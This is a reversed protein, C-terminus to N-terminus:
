VRYVHCMPLELSASCFRTCCRKVWRLTSSRCMVRPGPVHVRTPLGEFWVWQEAAEPQQKDGAPTKHQYTKLFVLRLDGNPSQRGQAGPFTTLDHHKSTRPLEPEVKEESQPVAGSSQQAKNTEELELKLEGTPQSKKSEPTEELCTAGQLEENERIVTECVNSSRASIGLIKPVRLLSNWCRKALKHLEQIRPNSSKLLKLLSLKKFVMKLRNRKIAKSVPQLIKDQPEEDQLKSVMRNKSRKRASPSM